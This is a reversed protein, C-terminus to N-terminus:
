AARSDSSRSRRRHATAGRVYASSRSRFGFYAIVSFLVTHIAVQTADHLFSIWIHKVIWVVLLARGWNSGRLMLIGIAISLFQTAIIWILDDLKGTAFDDIPPWLHRVLQAVGVLIFLWGILTISIPRKPMPVLKALDVVAAM